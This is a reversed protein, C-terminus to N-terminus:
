EDEKQIDESSKRIQEFQERLNPIYAELYEMLNSDEVAFGVLHLCAIILEGIGENDREHITAIIRQRNFEPLFDSGTPREEINGVIKKKNKDYKWNEIDIM